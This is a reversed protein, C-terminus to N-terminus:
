KRYKFFHFWTNEDFLYPSFAFNLLLPENGQERRTWIISRLLETTQFRGGKTTEVEVIHHGRIQYETIEYTYMRETAGPPKDESRYRQSWVYITGPTGESAPVILVLAEQRNEWCDGPQACDEAWIGFSRDVASLPILTSTVSQEDFFFRLEQNWCESVRGTGCNDTYCVFLDPIDNLNLLGTALVPTMSATILGLSKDSKWLIQKEGQDFVSLYIRGNSKQRYLVGLKETLPLILVHEEEESSLRQGLQLGDWADDSKTVLEGFRLTNKEHAWTNGRYFFFIFLIVGVTWRKQRM